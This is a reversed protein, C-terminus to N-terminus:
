LGLEEHLPYRNADDDTLNLELEKIYSMNQGYPFYAMTLTSDESVIMESQHARDICRNRRGTLYNIDYIVYHSAM